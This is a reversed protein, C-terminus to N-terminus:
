ILGEISLSCYNKGPLALDVTFDKTFGYIVTPGYGDAEIGIALYVQGVLSALLSYVRELDPQNLEMSFNGRKSWPRQVLTTVGFENTVKRSYDNIGVSAGWRTAGVGSLMGALLIGCSVQTAGEITIRLLAGYFPPLGAAVVSSRSVQPTTFYQYWSAVQRYVLDITRSYVVVPNAASELVEVLLSSGTLEQLAVTDVRGLNLTVSLSVNAGSAGSQTTPTNVRTDFMAYRNTPAADYWWDPNDAPPRATNANQLSDYLRQGVQVRDGLAYTTGASWAPADTEPVTSALLQAPTVTIPKLIKV